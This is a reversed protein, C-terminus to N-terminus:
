KYIPARPAPQSALLRVFIARFSSQVGFKLYYYDSAAPTGDPMLMRANNHPALPRERDM